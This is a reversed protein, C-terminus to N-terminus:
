VIVTFHCYLSVIYISIYSAGAAVSNSIVDGPRGVKLNSGVARIHKYQTRLANICAHTIICANLILMCLAVSPPSAEHSEYLTMLM